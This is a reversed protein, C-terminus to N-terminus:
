HAMHVVSTKGLYSQLISSRDQGVEAKVTERQDDSPCEAQTTYLVRVRYTVSVSDTDGHNCSSLTFCSVAFVLFLSHSAM